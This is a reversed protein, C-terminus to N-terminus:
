ALANRCMPCEMNRQLWASICRKHFIHSCPLQRVVDSSEFEMLCVCCPALDDVELQNVLFLSGLDKRRKQLAKSPGPLRFLFREHGFMCCSILWVAVILAAAFCLPFVEVLVMCNGGQARNCPM